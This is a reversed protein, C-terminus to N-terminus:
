QGEQSHSMGKIRFWLYAVMWFLNNKKNLISFVSINQTYIYENQFKFGAPNIQFSKRMESM